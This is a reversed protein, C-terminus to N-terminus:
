EAKAPVESSEPQEVADKTSQYTAFFWALGKMLVIHFFVIVFFTVKIVAEDSNMVPSDPHLNRGANMAWVLMGLSGAVFVIDAIARVRRSEFVLPLLLTILGACSVVLQTMLRPDQTMARMPAITSGTFDWTSAAAYYGLISSVIWVIVVSIRFGTEWQWARKGSSALYWLAALLLLVFGALSAWTMAGHFVPLRVRTGLGEVAPFQSVAILSGILGVLM